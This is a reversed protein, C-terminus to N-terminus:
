ENKAFYRHLYRLIKPDIFHFSIDPYTTIEPYLKGKEEIEKQAEELLKIHKIYEEDKEKTPGEWKIEELVNNIILNERWIKRYAWVEKSSIEKTEQVNKSTLHLDKEVIFGILKKNPNKQRIDKTYFEFARSLKLLANKIPFLKTSYFPNNNNPKLYSLFEEIIDQVIYQEKLSSNKYTKLIENINKQNQIEM